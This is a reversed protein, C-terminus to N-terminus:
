DPKSLIKDPQLQTEVSYQQAKPMANNGKGQSDWTKSILTQIM